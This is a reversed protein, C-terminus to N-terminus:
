ASAAYVSREAATQWPWLCVVSAIAQFRWQCGASGSLHHRWPIRLGVGLVPKAANPHVKRNPMMRMFNM